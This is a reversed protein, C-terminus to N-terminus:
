ELAHDFKTFHKLQLPSRAHLKDGNQTPLKPVNHTPFKLDNPAPSPLNFLPITLAVAAVVM